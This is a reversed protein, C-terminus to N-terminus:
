ASPRPSITYNWEPHFPDGRLNLTAMEADSVKIGKPYSRTDLECRVTLGTTTTTSAILEVVAERSILPKGRWTQTIHCFMRHEIKNWKSTGPPYHCVRMTLGTEDALKQLEIKFLRVRSGNSGGGDATIMLQSMGPYRDRGMVDLWCRISNVAFQATDNDVGVSVLGDNAGIDYIGYPIAKGLDKDVFDHVNVKDPCGEPRYDSGGNKYAGILEKKKTDISIVPQGAMQMSIVATNIHEFQANRDPNHSGELTKRNVQRSYKLLGLLKPISNAAIEHGMTRLAAALKARSKSVWMLPRMPDGMTAPEVLQRLDELLTPDKEILTPCGGGPRRVAGSLSGPDALDKLGRGITSRAIGTARSAAAIGGYGATKAEVAALLRRSRENLDQSVATFRERIVSTDIM